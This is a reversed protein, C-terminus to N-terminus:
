KQTYNLFSNSVTGDDVFQQAMAVIKARAKLANNLFVKGRQLM